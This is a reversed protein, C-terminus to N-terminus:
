FLISHLLKQKETFVSSIQAKHLPCLTTVLGDYPMEWPLERHRQCAFTSEHTLLHYIEGVAFQWWSFSSSQYVCM